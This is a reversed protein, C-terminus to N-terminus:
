EESEKEEKEKEKEKEELGKELAVFANDVVSELTDAYVMTNQIVSHGLMRQLVNISINHELCRVAFTHRGWHASVRCPLNATECIRRIRKDFSNIGRKPLVYDYKKLIDMAEKIITIYFTEGTKQRRGRYRFTGNNNRAQSFDFRMTDAYAMGTCCMFLFVDRVEEMKSNLNTLNRLVDLESETLYKIYSTKEEKITYEDYPNFEILKDKMALRIFFSLNKHPCWAREKKRGQTLTWKDFTILNETTIDNFTRFLGLDRLQKLTIRYGAKTGECVPREEIKREIYNHFSDPNGVSFKQIYTNLGQLSFHKHFKVCYNIYDNISSVTSKIRTNYEIANNCKIVNGDKWQDAYLSIGTPIYQRKGDYYVEITVASKKKKTATGHRDFWVKLRPIKIM